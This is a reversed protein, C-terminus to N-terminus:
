RASVRYFRTPISPEDSDISQQRLLLGILAASILPLAITAPWLALVRGLRVPISTLLALAAFVWSSYQLVLAASYLWTGEISQRLRRREFWIVIAAPILMVENHSVWVPSVLLGVTLAMASIRLFDSSDSRIARRKWMALAAWIVVILDILLGVRGFLAELLSGTAAYSRYARVADVWEFIWGPFQWEGVLVLILTAVLFSLPLKWRARIDAVSWVLFWGFLPLAAQPKITALALLIGASVYAGRAAFYITSVIFFFVLLGLQQLAVGQAVPWSALAFLVTAAKVAPPSVGALQTWLLVAGAVLLPLLVRAANAVTDFNLNRFPVLLLTTYAPYVFRQQDSHTEGAPLEVGYYRRQIASTTEPGYPNEYRLLHQTAM